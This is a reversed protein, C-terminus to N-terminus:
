FIIQNEWSEMYQKLLGLFEYQCWKPVEDGKHLVIQLLKM